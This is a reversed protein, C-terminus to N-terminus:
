ASQTTRLGFLPTLANFTAVVASGNSILTAGIPGILGPLTLAIAATNGWFIFNWNQNILEISERAVDIVQPIKWLNGQLLAVHATERAVDAGGRVAIGVDAQALAPSDNIGDGVVAVTYGDRQLSKVFESKESPLADAIYRSIGLSQAVEQAVAPQDGTLMVVKQMGRAHLAAVVEAAEPRLPDNCVVLGILKGDEAVFIPSTAERSLRRLDKAAKRVNVGKLSMFRGCGVTVVARDIEAEVGLGISYDSATREPIPLGRERAARVIAESVPHTLREEAAAAIALVHESTVRDGFPIVDVVQPAGATLTGTKDFVIADVKALQELYRGGKILIGQRAARTIAALVTTPAAVRIGTGYDVILLSAAQGVNATALYTGGAGLFSWPVVRDAFREAYNQVRTERVPAERVLQVVKAVMTDDGVKAARLYLKGDRVVTAAFVQAGEDKEVPMSEGTLMKQDVLAHGSLVVGDVPILEGPYVVVEDGEEIEDIEVQVKKGDRVVWASHAKGDFLELVARESRQLTLDRIFDGLSVLWVMASATRFQGQAGLVATAAADLVDVNLRGRETLSEFARKFIPVAAAALLWPAVVSEGFLGLAVATSSLGLNLWSLPEPDKAESRVRPRYAALREGPLQDVLAVLEDPLLCGPEYTLVASRCDPNLDVAKVGPQDRLFAEFAESLGNQLEPADVRLRLRGPIAHV